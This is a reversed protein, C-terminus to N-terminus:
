AAVRLDDNAAYSTATVKGGRYEVRVGEPAKSVIQGNAAAQLTQSKLSLFDGNRNNTNPIQTTGLAALTHVEEAHACAGGDGDQWVKLQAFVPDAADIVGDANADVWSMSRLGKAADAVASNSFLERGSDVIGNPNRDLWLLGEGSGVWGVQKDFGSGDWNFAQTTQADALTTVRGDGDLDLAIPRFEGATPLNTLPDIPALLGRRAGRLEETLGANPDGADQQLRATQVEWMPAVAERALSTVVLREFLSRRQEPDTADANYPTGDDNYRLFPYRDQGTLPDVDGIAFGPDNQRAERWTLTPMRQPILGLVQGPNAQSSDAIMQELYGRVGGFYAPNISGDTLRAPEGNGLMMNSVRDKGFSEGQVDFALGTTDGFKFQGIGWAEPPSELAKALAAVSLLLTFPNSLGLFYAALSQAAGLADGNKIAVVLGLGPIIDAGAGQGFFVSVANTNSLVGIGVLADTTAKVSNLSASIQELADGNELANALNYLSLAGSAVASAGGLYPIAHNRDLTNLLKLGSALQPLPQGSKIANILSTTDGIASIFTQAYSAVEVQNIVVGSESRTIHLESGDPRTTTEVISGDGLTRRFETALLLGAGDFSFTKTSGDANAISVKRTHLIPATNSAAFVLQENSGDANRLQVLASGDDFRQTTTTSQLSGKAGLTQGTTTTGETTWRFGSGDRRLLLGSLGDPAEVYLSNGGSAFVRSGDAITPLYGKIAAWLEVFDSRGDGDTDGGADSVTAALSAYSATTGTLAGTLALAELNEVGPVDNRTILRLFRNDARAQEIEIITDISHIKGAQVGLSVIPGAVSAIAFAALNYLPSYETTVGDAHVGTRGIFTFIRSRFDALSYENQLNAFRGEADDARLRTRTEISYATYAESNLVQAAGPGDLSSGRLGWFKAVLQAEFGGQSHGTVSLAIRAQDLTLGGEIMIQKIALETFQLAQRMEENFNGVALSVNSNIDGGALPNATGRFAIKFRGDPGRFLQAAFNGASSEDFTGVRVPAWGSTAPGAGSNSTTYSAKALQSDLVLDSM